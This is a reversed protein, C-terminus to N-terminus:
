EGVEEFVHWILAGNEMQVTGIYELQERPVDHGTGLIIITRKELNNQNNVIAWLCLLGHQTQVTLITAGEPMEIYQRDIAELPYKFISKM